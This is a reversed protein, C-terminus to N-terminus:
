YMTWSPLAETWQWMSVSKDPAIEITDGRCHELGLTSLNLLFIILLLILLFLFFSGLLFSVLLSQTTRETGLLSDCSIQAWGKSPCM